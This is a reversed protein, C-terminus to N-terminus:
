DEEDPAKPEPLGFIERYYDDITADNDLTINSGHQLYDDAARRSQAGFRGDVTIQYGQQALFQQIRRIKERADAETHNTTSAPSQSTNVAPPRVVFPIETDDTVPPPEPPLRFLNECGRTPMYPCIDESMTRRINNLWVSDTRPVLDHAALAGYLAAAIGLNRATRLLRRMIIGDRLEQWYERPVKSRRYLTLLTSGLWAIGLPIVVMLAVRVATDFVAFFPRDAFRTEMQAEAYLTAYFLTPAAFLWWVGAAHTPSVKDLIRNLTFELLPASFCM